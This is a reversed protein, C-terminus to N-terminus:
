KKRIQRGSYLLTRFAQSKTIVKVQNCYQLMKHKYQKLQIQNTFNNFTTLHFGDLFLTAKTNDLQIEGVSFTAASTPTSSIVKKATYVAFGHIGIRFDM